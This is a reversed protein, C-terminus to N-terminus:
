WWGGVKQAVLGDEVNVLLRIYFRPMTGNSSVIHSRSKEVHKNLEDFDEELQSWDNIDLSHKIKKVKEKMTDWAKDKASRVV